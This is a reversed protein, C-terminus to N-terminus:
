AYRAARERLADVAECGIGCDGIRAGYSEGHSDSGGSTLLALRAALGNLHEIQPPQHSPHFVEVGDMGVDVLSQITADSVFLGPHALIVVGGLDHVMAIVDGSPTRAKPVDAPRRDGIFRSFAEEKNSVAGCAVMAAAIHPRGLPGGDSRVLVEELTVRVGLQNLREVIAAGREHRRQHVLEVYAALRPSTHDLCYALLHVEREEIHASLETGPIIEIGHEAGARMVEPVGEVTDHDTLSLARVGAVAAEEVAQTPTRMGDSCFSHTHLDALNYQVM